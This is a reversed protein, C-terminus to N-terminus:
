DSGAKGINKGNAKCDWKEGGRIMVSQGRDRSIVVAM